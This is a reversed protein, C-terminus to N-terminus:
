FPMGDSSDFGSTVVEGGFGFNNDEDIKTNATGKNRREWIVDQADLVTERVKQGAREGSKVEYQRELVRYQIIVFEGKHHDACWSGIKRAGVDTVRVNVWTKIYKKADKDYYLQTGIRLMAMNDGSPLAYMTPEDGLIGTLTGTNIDM